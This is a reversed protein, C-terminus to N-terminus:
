IKWLYYNFLEVIIDQNIKSPIQSKTEYSYIMVRNGCLSHKIDVFYDNGFVSIKYFRDFSGYDWSDQPFNKLLINSSIGAWNYYYNARKNFEKPFKELTEILKIGSKEYLLRVAKESSINEVLEDVVFDWLDIMLSEDGRVYNPVTDLDIGIKPCAGLIMYITVNEDTLCCPIESVIYKKFKSLNPEYERLSSNKIELDHNILKVSEELGILSEASKLLYRPNKILEKEWSDEKCDWLSLEIM